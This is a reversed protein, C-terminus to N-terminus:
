RRPSWRSATEPRARAAAEISANLALLNTQDAIDTILRTVNEIDAVLDNLQEVAAVTRETQTEIEALERMAAAASERGDESDRAVRDARDAADDAATSVREVTATLDNMEGVVSRLHDRQDSAGESIRQVSESVDASTETVDAVTEDVLESEDAVTEGFTRVSRLTTEWEDLMANFARAVEALADSEADEDLRRTLDGDACAAMADGYEAATTELHDRLREAERREADVERKAREAEDRAREAESRATEASDIQERLSNQMAGFADYLRGFEDIRDTRLDADLNGRQMQEATETLDQLTRTQTRGFGVAAVGLVALTALVMALLTTGVSDRMAYATATPVHTLVVWDTEDVPAYGVVSTGATTLGAGEATANAAIATEDFDGQTGNQGSDLVTEGTGDVVLTEGGDITQHFDGARETLSAVVVVAHETNKPPSSVFAITREGSVPSAYSDNTVHVASPHNTEADITEADWTAGLDSMNRGVVDRSTSALVDGSRAEVYHVAVVAESLSNQQGLLYLGIEDVDGNQFQKAQSLTKTQRELGDIWGDLGDAQLEATSTLQRQVQSELRQQTTVYGLAGVTGTVLMVVLAGVFFKRAHRKRVWDPVVDAADARRFWGDTDRM